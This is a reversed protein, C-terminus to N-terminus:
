VHYFLDKVQTLPVLSSLYSFFDRLGQLRCRYNAWSSLDIQLRAHSWVSCGAGVTSPSLTTLGKVAAVSWDRRWAVISLGNRSPTEGSPTRALQTDGSPAPCPIGTVQTETSGHTPRSASSPCPHGPHHHQTARSSHAGFTKRRTSLDANPLSDGVALSDYDTM